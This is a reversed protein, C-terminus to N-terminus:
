KSVIKALSWFSNAINQLRKIETKISENHSINAFSDITTQVIQKHIHMEDKFMHIIQPNPWDYDNNPGDLNTQCFVIKDLIDLKKTFLKECDARLRKFSEEHHTKFLEVLEPNNKQMIKYIKKISYILGNITNIKESSPDRLVVNIWIYSTVISLLFLICEITFNYKISNCSEPKDLKSSIPVTSSISPKTKKPKKQKKPTTTPTKSIDNSGTLVATTDLLVISSHEDFSDSQIITTTTIIIKQKGSAHTHVKVKHKHTRNQKFKGM